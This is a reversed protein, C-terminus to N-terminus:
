RDYAGRQEASGAVGDNGHDSAFIYRRPLAEPTTRAVEDGIWAMARHLFQAHTDISANATM